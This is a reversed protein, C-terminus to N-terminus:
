QLEEFFLNECKRLFKKGKSSIVIMSKVKVYWIVYSCVVYHVFEAEFLTYSFNTEYFM